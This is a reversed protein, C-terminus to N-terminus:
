PLCFPLQCLNLMRKKDDHKSTDVYQPAPLDEVLDMSVPLDAAPAVPAAQVAPQSSAPLIAPVPLDSLNVLSSPLAAVPTAPAPVAAQLEGLTRDKRVRSRTLDDRLGLLAPTEAAVQESFDGSTPANFIIEKEDEGPRIEAKKLRSINVVITRADRLKELDGINTPIM